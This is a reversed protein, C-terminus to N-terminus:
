SSFLLVVSVIKTLLKMMQLRCTNRLIVITVDPVSFRKPCTVHTPTHLLIYFMTSIDVLVFGCPLCPLRHILVSLHTIVSFMSVHVGEFTNVNRFGFKHKFCWLTTCYVDVVSHVIYIQRRERSTMFCSYIQLSDLQCVFGGGSGFVSAELVKREFMEAHNLNLLRLMVQNKHKM